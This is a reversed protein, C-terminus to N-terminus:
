IEIIIICCKKKITIYKKVTIINLLIFLLVGFIEFSLYLYVNSIYSIFTYTIFAISM